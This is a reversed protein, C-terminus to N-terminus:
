NLHIFIPIIVTGTIPAGHCNIVDVTDFKRTSSNFRIYFVQNDSTGLFINDKEDICLCLISSNTITCTSIVVIKNEERVLLHLDGSSACLLANRSIRGGCKLSTISKKSVRDFIRFTM